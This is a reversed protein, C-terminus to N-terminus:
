ENRHYRDRKYENLQAAHVQQRYQRRDNKVDITILERGIIDLSSGNKLEINYTM